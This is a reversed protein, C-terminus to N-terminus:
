VAKLISGNGIKRNSQNKTNEELIKESTKLPVEDDWSSQNDLPNGLPNRFANDISLPKNLVSSTEQKEYELNLHGTRDAYVLNGHGEEGHDHSHHSREYYGSFNKVSADFARQLKDSTIQKIKLAKEKGFIKGLLTKEVDAKTFTQMTRVLIEESGQLNHYLSDADHVIKNWAKHAINIKDKKFSIDINEMYNTIITNKNATKYKTNLEEIEKGATKEAAAKERTKQADTLSANSDISAREAELKELIKKEKLHRYSEVSPSQLFQLDEQLDTLEKALKEKTTKLEEQRVPDTENKLLNNNDEIEKSKQKVDEEKDKIIKADFEPMPYSGVIREYEKNVIDPRKLIMLMKIMKNEGYCLENKADYKKTRQNYLSLNEDRMINDIAKIYAKLQMNELIKDHSDFSGKDNINKVIDTSKRQEKIKEEIKSLGDKLTKLNAVSKELDEKNKAIDKQAKAVVQTAKYYKEKAAERELSNKAKTDWELDASKAIEKNKKIEIELDTNAQSLKEIESQQAKISQKKQSIGILLEIDDQKINQNFNTNFDELDKRESDSFQKTFSFLGKDQISKKDTSILDEPVFENVLRKSFENEIDKAVSLVEQKSMADEIKIFSKDKNKEKKKEIDIVEKFISDGTFNLVAHQTEHILTSKGSFEVHSRNSDKIGTTLGLSSRGNKLNLGYGGLQTLDTDMLYLKEISKRGVTDDGQDYLNEYMKVTGDKLKTELTDRLSEDAYCIGVLAPLAPYDDIYKRNLDKVFKNFQEEKIKQDSQQSIKQIEDLFKSRITGIFSSDVKSLKKELSQLNAALLENFGDPGLTKIFRQMEDLNLSFNDLTEKKRDESSQFTKYNMIKGIEGQPINQQFKLVHSLFDKMETSACNLIEPSVKTKGRLAKLVHDKNTLQKCKEEYKKAFDYRSMERREEKAKKEEGKIEEIPMINDINMSSVYQQLCHKQKMLDGTVSLAGGNEIMSSPISYIMDRFMTATSDSSVFLWTLGGGLVLLGALIKGQHKKIFDKATKIQKKFDGNVLMLILGKNNESGDGLIAKLGDFANAFYGKMEATPPPSQGYEDAQRAQAQDQELKQKRIKNEQKVKKVLEKYNKEWDKSYFLGPAIWNGGKKVWKSVFGDKNPSGRLNKRDFAM